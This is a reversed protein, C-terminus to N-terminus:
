LIDWAQLTAKDNAIAEMYKEKAADQPANKIRADFERYLTSLLRMDSSSIVESALVKEIMNNLAWYVSKYDSKDIEMARLLYKNAKELDMEIELFAQRVSPVSFYRNAKSYTFGCEFMARSNTGDEALKLLEAFGAKVDQPNQSNILIVNYDMIAPAYLSDVALVKLKEKAKRLSDVNTLLSKAENYLEEKSRYDVVVIDDVEEVSESKSSGMALLLAIVGGTLLAGGGAIAAILGLKNGAGKHVIAPLHELDVRFEAASAYRKEQNKSTAKLVVKRFDKRDIDGVPLPKRLQASLIQDDSGSFPLHGTCLQFLMIGVAYIDTTYNQHVLDGIVLEPAAYNVKGMFVGAATLAKDQSALSAIQKCIGFDILKIKGDITIMINTPDIDRHIYNKDHLAMLGSLVNKVIKITAEYRNKLYMEYLERAFPILLGNQDTVIGRLMEDLTIGVLLEMIVHYHAKKVISGNFEYESTTEVFGYMKILNDNEVQIAAERRAREVVREPINEYIAKIAVPTREQTREVVRFGKYVRGMAGEGLPTSEIDYEYYVGQRKEIDGQLRQIRM